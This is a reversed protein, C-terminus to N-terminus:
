MKWQLDRHIINKDTHLYNLATILQLFLRQAECEEIKKNKVILDHLTGNPLYEMVINFSDNSEFFDFFDVILPHHLSKLIELEKYFATKKQITDLKSKHITKIAVAVMTPQHIAKYVTSFSGSGIQQLYKYDGFIRAKRLRSM